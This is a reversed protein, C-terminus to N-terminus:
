TLAPPETVAVVVTTGENRASKIELAASGPLRHNLQEVLQHMRRIGYGPEISSNGKGTDSITLRVSSEIRAVRVTIQVASDALLAGSHLLANSLASSAIRLLVSQLPGALRLDSPCDVTIPPAETLLAVRRRWASITANLASCFEAAPHRHSIVITHITKLEAVTTRAHRVIQPLLAKVHELEGRNFRTALADLLLVVGSHYWNILEHLDDELTAREWHDLTALHRLRILAVATHETLHILRQEDDKDFDDPVDGRMRNELRLVGLVCGSDPHIIPALLISQRVGSPLYDLRDMDGCWAPHSLWDSGNLLLPQGMAAVWAAFSSGQETKIQRRQGIYHTNNLNTSSVLEIERNHTLYLSCEEAALFQSGAQVVAGGLAEVDPCRTFRTIAEVFAHARQREAELTRQILSREISTAAQYTIQRVMARALATFRGPSDDAVTLIGVLRNATDLLPEVIISRPRCEFYKAYFDRASFVQALDESHFPRINRYVACHSLVEEVSLGDRLPFDVAAYALHRKTDPDLILLLARSAGCAQTAVRVISEALADLARTQSLTEHIKALSESGIFARHFLWQLAFTVLLLIAAVALYKGGHVSKPNAAIASLYLGTIATGVSAVTARLTSFYVITSIIPVLYLFGLLPRDIESFALLWTISLHIFAIRALRFLPTDYHHTAAVRLVELAVLYLSNSILWVALARHDLVNGPLVHLIGVAVVFLFGWFRSLVVAPAALSSPGFITTLARVAGVDARLVDFPHTRQPKMTRFM